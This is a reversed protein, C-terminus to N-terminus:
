VAHLSVLGPQRMLLEGAGLFLADWVSQPAVGRNLQGVVNDCAEEDSAERLAALMGAVAEASPKGQRWEGRIKAAKGQNRRWPRDPAADRRAPNDGEHYLLAYALSRFVPEAHPWGCANLRRWGHAVMFPKHGMAGFGRADL